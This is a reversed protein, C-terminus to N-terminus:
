GKRKRTRELKLLAEGLSHRPEAAQGNALSQITSPKSECLRAIEAFSLGGEILGRILAAWKTETTATSM